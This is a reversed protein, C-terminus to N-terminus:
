SRECMMEDDKEEKNQKRTTPQEGKTLCYFKGREEEREREKKKM